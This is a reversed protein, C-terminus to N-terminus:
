QRFTSVKKIFALFVETVKKRLIDEVELACEINQPYPMGHTIITSELAVIPIGNELGHQVEESLFIKNTNTSITAINRFQGNSYANRLSRAGTLMIVVCASLSLSSHIIFYIYRFISLKM